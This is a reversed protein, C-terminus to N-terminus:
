QYIGPVSETRLVAEVRRLVASVERDLEAQRQADAQARLSWAKRCVREYEQQLSYLQEWGRAQSPADM